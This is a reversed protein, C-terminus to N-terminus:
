GVVVYLTEPDPTLLADYAAQTLVEIPTTVEAGSSAGSGAAPFSSGDWIYLLDDDQSFYVAGEDAPGLTSAIATLEAYDVVVATIALGNGDEGDVGAPGQPGTVGQPGIGGTAGAEGEPGVVYGADLVTADSLTVQLHGLEDVEAAAVSVGDDGVAGTAGTAGTPGIVSGADIVTSDSLTVQLHGSGDVTATTVSTGQPGTDGTPGTAGRIEVGDVEAPFATGDWVYLLGNDNNIYAKGADSPGLGSAIAALGSYNDVAGALEIGVGSHTHSALRSLVTSKIDDLKRREDRVVREIRDFRRPDTAM